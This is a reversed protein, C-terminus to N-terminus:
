QTIGPQLEELWDLIYEPVDEKHKMGNYEKIVDSRIGLLAPSTSDSAVVNFYNTHFTSLRNIAGDRAMSSEKNAQYVTERQFVTKYRDWHLGVYVSFGIAGLGLVWAFIVLLSASKMVDVVDTSYGYHKAM